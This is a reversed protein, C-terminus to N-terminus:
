VAHSPVVEGAILRGQSKLEMVGDCNIRVGQVNQNSVADTKGLNSLCQNSSPNRHAKFHNVASRLDRLDAHDTESVDDWRNGVKHLIVVEGAWPHVTQEKCAARISQNAPSGKFLMGDELYVEIADNLIKNHVRDWNVFHTDHGQNGFRKRSKNFPFVRIEKEMGQLKQSDLQM